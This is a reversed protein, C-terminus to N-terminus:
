KYFLFFGTTYSKGLVMKGIITFLDKEWVRYGLELKGVRYEEWNRGWKGEWGTERIEWWFAFLGRFLFLLISCLLISSVCKFRVSYLSPFSGCSDWICANACKPMRHFVSFQFAYCMPLPASRDLGWAAETGILEPHQLRTPTSLRTKRSAEM